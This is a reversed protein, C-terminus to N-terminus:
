QILELRLNSRDQWGLVMENWTDPKKYALKLSSVDIDESLQIDDPHVNGYGKESSFVLYGIELPNIDMM